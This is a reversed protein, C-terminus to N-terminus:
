LTVQEGLISDLSLHNDNSSVSYNGRSILTEIDFFRPRKKYFKVAIYARAKSIDSLKKLSLAAKKLNIKDKRTAKCEIVIVKRDKIGIVDPVPFGVTGSGAARIAAWGHEWLENVIDREFRAGKQYNTM